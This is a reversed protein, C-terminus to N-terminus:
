IARSSIVNPNQGFPAPKTRWGQWNLQRGTRQIKETRNSTAMVALDKKGSGVLAAFKTSIIGRGMSERRVEALNTHSAASFERPIARAHCPDAGAVPSEPLAALIP